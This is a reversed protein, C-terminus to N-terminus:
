RETRLTTSPGRQPRMLSVRRPRPPKRGTLLDKQRGNLIYALGQHTVRLLRAARTISGNASDLARKLLRSEHARMEDELSCGAWPEAFGAKHTGRLAVTEVAAPTIIAGAPATIFTREILARLERVNGALPLRRMADLSEPTFIVQKDHQRAAMDIFHRALVPIDEVRERLPPLELHFGALRYFLDLRFLKRAVQERLDHNTAAIIRVNVREPLAQGLAYVEGQEILRLLKAQNTLSLEGIEDLFLTGGEAMRAAGAYDETAGTFSGKRHGFLQSEVLTACLAACNIAVFPGARRSWEHLLRALVEKGTGTEGSLLVPEDARAVCRAEQLLQASKEAAHIFSITENNNTAPGNPTDLLRRACARLRAITEAHQAKALCEDARLYFARRENLSLFDTLEELLCLAARGSGEGDGARTGTELARELTARAEAPCGLRALATGHTTLAETLLALEDGATLARVAGRAIKEAEQYRGEALLARARTDDVQAISGTEKISVFLRRARGLHEHAAVFRQLRYLLFGLNNENRARYRAHGAQEFHFSAASYEILARDIYDQRREATGLENLTNALTSHYSGKLVHNCNAGMQPETELLLLLADNLRGASREVEGRRILALARVDEDLENVHELATCLLVRAEEYAGERWYCWAIETQAEAAKGRAGLADFRTLSEGILDKAAEQAGAVQRASGLWGTLSGARLLLEAQAPEALEALLPRVALGQWFEGLGRSAAEYNGADELTKALACHLFAKETRSLKPEDLRRLLTAALHM